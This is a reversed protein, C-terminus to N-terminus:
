VNKYKNTVAELQEISPNLSAWRFKKLIRHVEAKNKIPMPPAFHTDGVYLDFHISFVGYAVRHVHFRGGSEERVWDGWERKRYGAKKLIVPSPLKHFRLILLM